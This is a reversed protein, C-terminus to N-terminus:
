DTILSIIKIIDISVGGFKKGQTPHNCTKEHTEKGTGESSSKRSGESAEEDGRGIDAGHLGRFICSYSIIENYVANHLKVTHLLFTIAFNNTHHL